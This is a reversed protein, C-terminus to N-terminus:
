DAKELRKFVLKEDCLYVVDGVSLQHASQIKEGGISTGNTSGLDEIFLADGERKIQAHFRSMGKEDIMIENQSARGIRILDGKLAFTKDRWTAHTPIVGQEVLVVDNAINAQPTVIMIEEQTEKQARQIERLRLMVTDEHRNKSTYYAQTSMTKRSYEDYTKAGSEMKTAQELLAHQEELLINNKVMSLDIAQAVVRLVQSAGLFDGDDAYRVAENRAQAAQLLLVSQTVNLDPPPPLEGNPRVRIMVPVEFVHHNSQQDLIEDYEFRLLAIQKEGLSSLAPINLELVLTKLEDAFIDGVNFTTHVGNTHMPYMNLQKLSKVDSNPTITITLNQGVINLLGTLEERFIEPAVEPSEIFYFAGGGGNAMEMLLDENFDTGLGMTTTSVGQEHKQKAMQVLQPTETVGRNALGDSMLIVRNLYGTNFKSLVHQCGELWGGSLNTTGSVRVGTILQSVADKNHLVDPSVLTEVRDNYLVISLIDKAGLHQVLFQAAQRTYDMKAGAMSGSRDIVLSINLPRRTYDNSASGASFRAMLYLKQPREVTLVDYDLSFDAKM